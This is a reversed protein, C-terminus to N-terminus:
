PGTAMAFRARSTPSVASALKQLKGQSWHIELEFGGRACARSPATPGPKRAAPLLAIEGAHSQLLMEAIGATGGFNGDIQFPPHADFMNPYTRDPRILRHLIEYTHEADQLRAWLNLRWALGWGTADDGRIELSRRAAAALEPTRRLRSRARSCVMFIRSM